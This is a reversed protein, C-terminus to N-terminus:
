SMRTLYYASRPSGSGPTAGEPVQRRIKGSIDVWNSNVDDTVRM